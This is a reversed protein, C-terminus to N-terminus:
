DILRGGERCFKTRAHASLNEFAGRTMLPEASSPLPRKSQAAVSPTDILKGGAKCFELRENPSLKEFASRNVPLQFRARSSLPKAAMM